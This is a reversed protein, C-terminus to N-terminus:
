SATGNAKDPSETGPVAGAQKAAAALREKTSSRSGSASQPDTATAVAALIKDDTSKM